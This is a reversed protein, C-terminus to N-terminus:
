FTTHFELSSSCGRNEISILRMREDDVGGDRRQKDQSPIWSPLFIGSQFSVISILENSCIREPREVTRLLTDYEALALRGTSIAYEVASM